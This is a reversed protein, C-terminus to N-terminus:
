IKKRLLSMSIFDSLLPIPCYFLFKGAVIGAVDLGVLGLVFYHGAKSCLWHRVKDRTTHVVHQATEPYIWHQVNIYNKVEHGPRKPLLPDEEDDREDFNPNSSMIAHHAGIAAHALNHVISIAAAEINAPNLYKYVQDEIDYTIDAATNEIDIEINEATDHITTQIAGAAQQIDAQVTASANNVLEDATRIIQASFDNAARQIDGQLEKSLDKASIDNQPRPRRPKPHFGSYKPHTRTPRSRAEPSSQARAHQTPRTPHVSHGKPSM